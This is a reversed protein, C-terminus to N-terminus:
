PPQSIENPDLFRPFGVQTHDMEAMSRSFEPQAMTSEAQTRRLEDMAEELSSRQVQPSQLTNYSTNWSTSPYHQWGPNYNNWYSTGEYRVQTMHMHPNRVQNTVRQHYENAIQRMRLQQNLLTLANTLKIIPDM